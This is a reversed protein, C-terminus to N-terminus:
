GSALMILVDLTVNVERLRQKRMESIPLYQKGQLPAPLIFHFFSHVTVQGSSLLCWVDKRLWRDERERERERERKRFRTANM